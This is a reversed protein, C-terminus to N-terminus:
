YITNHKKLYTTDTFLVLGAIHFLAEGWSKGLYPKRPQCGQKIFCLKMMLEDTSQKTYHGM